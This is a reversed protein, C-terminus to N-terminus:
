QAAERVPEPAPPSAGYGYRKYASGSYGDYHRLRQLDVQTLVTGLIRDHVPSLLEVARSVVDPPTRDWAVALIILDALEALVRGDVLPMLPPSDVVIVQYHQRLEAFVGGVGASFMLEALQAHKPPSPLLSLGTSRDVLIARRLPVQEAAVDILGVEARPCLSRSLEPNRLDGEVLVTRQGLTAFSAALNAALTTKGEGDLASSILIIPPPGGRSARQAALRVARVAEAFLSTPEDIAYRLLPPQLAPPFLRAAKPDYRELEERGRKALRALERVGVLPVAALGTVGSAQEMQELTKVSRDMRDTILALVCGLGLGLAPALGLMLLTKPFSPALPVSAQTVIRAEPLELSEQATAEKYRALYSEYITRNADAERQLERLRVQAQGSETSV